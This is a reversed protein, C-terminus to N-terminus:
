YRAGALFGAIIGTRNWIGRGVTAAEAAANPRGHLEGIKIGALQDLGTGVLDTGVFDDFELLSECFGDVIADLNPEIVQEQLARGNSRVSADDLALLALREAVEAADYRCRGSQSVLM